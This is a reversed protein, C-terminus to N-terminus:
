LEDERIVELFCESFALSTNLVEDITNEPGGIEVLITYPSFDQNYVGNVGEGQKQLIGKSLNPYKENLKQNIRETFVQNKQYNPNELGILFLIKAYNKDNITVTTKEKKLSDRHVDIFYKLSPYKNKVDELFVRSADYSYAYNWNHENLVQKINREETITKYNNKEFVEELVYNNMQVTPNISYEVFTSPTYEETQHSNYIYIIPNESVEKIVQKQKEAKIIKNQYSKNMIKELMNKKNPLFTSTISKVINTEKKNSLLIEVLEKQDIKKINNDLYQYTLYIGLIFVLLLPFKKVRYKKKPKFYTRKKM